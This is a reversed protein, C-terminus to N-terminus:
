RSCEFVEDNRDQMSIHHGNVILAYANGIIAKYFYVKGISLKKVGDLAYSDSQITLYKPFTLGDVELIDGSSSTCELNVDGQLSDSNNIGAQSASASFSAFLVAAIILKKM